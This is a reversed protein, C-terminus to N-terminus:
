AHDSLVSTPFDWQAIIGDISGSFSDLQAKTEEFLQNFSLEEAEVATDVSLLEHINLAKAERLTEMAHRQKDELAVVFINRKMM